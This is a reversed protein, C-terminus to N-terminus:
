PDNGAAPNVPYLEPRFEETKRTEDLTSGAAHRMEYAAIAPFSLCIGYIIWIFRFAEHLFASTVLYGLLSYGYAYVLNGHTTLGAARLQSASKVIVKFIYWILLLYVTLGLLGREAAIEMYLSHAALDGGGQPTINLQHAYHQYYYEFNGLGIGLLPHDLFMELAVRLAGMRGRIGSDQIGTNDDGFQFFTGMM